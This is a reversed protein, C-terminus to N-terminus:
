FRPCVAIAPNRKMDKNPQNVASLFLVTGTKIDQLAVAFSRDFKVDIEKPPAFACELSVVATTVAAAESGEENTKLVTDHTAQSLYLNGGKGNGMKSLDAKGGDFVAKLGMDKLSPILDYKNDMDLRPLELKGVANEFAQPELWLPIKAADQQALWNRVNVAPDKPRVMVMRMTPRVTKSYDNYDINEKGYTMAVAEFDKGNLYRLDGEETVEKRMTATLQDPIGSNDTFSKEVTLAKDFKHTWEGKFYLSSALVAANDPGLEEIVKTILGETNKDAWANIKDVTAQSFTEGSITAGFEKELAAAYDPNLEISQNNTWVGNATKLVVQDKNADLVENNLAMLKSVEADLNAADTNFLTKAFETKTQGDAGKAVMSLCALANYPSVVINASQDKENGSVAKAFSMTLKITNQVEPKFGAGIYEEPFEYRAM